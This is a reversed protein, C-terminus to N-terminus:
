DRNPADWGCQGRRVFRQRSIVFGASPGSRGLLPSARGTFSATQRSLKALAYTQGFFLLQRPLETLSISTIGQLFNTEPIRVM